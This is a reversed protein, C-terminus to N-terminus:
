LRYIRFRSFTPKRSLGGSTPGASLRSLARAAGHDQLGGRRSGVAPERHVRSDNERGGHGRECLFLRAGPSAAGLVAEAADLIGTAAVSVVAGQHVAGAEVAVAPAAGGGSPPHSRAVGGGSHITVERAARIQRIVERAREAIDGRLVQHRYKTIWVIHYKLDTVAHAGHRYEGM